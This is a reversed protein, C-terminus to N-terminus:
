PQDIWIEYINAVNYANGSPNGQIHVHARVQLTSLDTGSLITYDLETQATLATVHPIMDVGNLSLALYGTVSPNGDPTYDYSVKLTANAGLVVPPFNFWICIGDNHDDFEISATVTAATLLNDDFAYTPNTTPNGGTDSYM